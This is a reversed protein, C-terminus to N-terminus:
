RGRRASGESILLGENRLAYHFLTSTSIYTGDPFLCFGDQGPPSGNALSVDEGPVALGGLDGCMLAGPEAGGVWRDEIGSLTARELSALAPCAAGRALCSASILRGLARSRELKVVRGRIRMTVRGEPALREPPVAPPFGSKRANRWAALAGPTPPPLHPPRVIDETNALLAGRDLWINGLGEECGGNGSIKRPYQSCETGWSNRVLYQCSHTGANWRRGIVLAAHGERACDVRLGPELIKPCFHIEIPLPAPTELEEDIARGIAGPTDEQPNGPYVDCGLPPTNGFPSIQTPPRSDTRCASALRRIKGPDISDSLLRRELGPGILNAEAAPRTGDVLAPCSPSARSPGGALGALGRSDGQSIEKLIHSQLEKAGADFYGGLEPNSEVAADACVGHSQVYSLAWCEKGGSRFANRGKELSLGGAIEVGSTQFGYDTDGLRSFRIADALQAGTEAFCIGLGLQARPKVHEMSGGRYDMRIPSCSEEGSGAVSGDGASSALSFSM